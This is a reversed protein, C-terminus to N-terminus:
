NVTIIVTGTEPDRAGHHAPAWAASVGATDTPGFAHRSPTAVAPLSTGFREGPDHGDRGAGQLVSGSLPTWTNVRGRLM